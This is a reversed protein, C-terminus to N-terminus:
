NFYLMEEFNDEVKKNKESSGKKRKLVWPPPYVIPGRIKYRNMRQLYKLNKEEELKILIEKGELLKKTKNKLKIKDCVKKFVEDPNNKDGQIIEMEKLLQNLHDEMKHIIDLTNDIIQEVPIKIGKQNLPTKVLEYNIENILYSIDDLEKQYNDQKFDGKEIELEKNLIDLHKEDDDKIKQLSLMEVDFLRKQKFKEKLIEDRVDMQQIIKGELSFFLATILDPNILEATNIPIEKSNLLFKFQRIVNKAITTLDKEKTQLSNKINNVDVNISEKGLLKHIFNAYNKYLIIGKINREIENETEHVQSNIKKIKQILLKNNRIIEELHFDTERFQANKNKKFNDFIEEDKLFIINADELAKKIDKEKQKIKNSENKLLDIIYNKKTIDRNQIAFAHLDFTKKNYLTKHAKKENIMNKKINNMIIKADNIVEVKELPFYKKKDVESKLDFDDRPGFSRVRSRINDIDKRNQFTCIDYIHNIKEKWILGKNIRKSIMKDMNKIESLAFFTDDTEVSSLKYKNRQLSTLKKRKNKKFANNILQNYKGLSSLARNPETLINYSNQNLKQNTKQKKFPNRSYFTKYYTSNEKNVIKPFSLFTERFSDKDM